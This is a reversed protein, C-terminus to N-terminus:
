EAEGGEFRYDHAVLIPRQDLERWFMALWVLGIGITIVIDLWSISAGDAHLNPEVLWILELLRMVLVFAAIAGLISRSRKAGRFLLLFFPIFFYGAMLVAGAYFWSTEMRPLYWRIEEPLNGAYIILFQSFVVYVWFMVSMLIMNGLDNFTGETAVLGVDERRALRTGILTMFAFTSVGSGAITIFGFQTSWWHPDLSMLWDWGGITMLVVWAVMGGASWRQAEIALPEGGERDQRDSITNLKWLLTALLLFILITRAIFMPENLYGIRHGLGESELYGERAWPYITDMGLAIPVFLILMLPWTRGASELPRRILYGWAGGTLHYLMLVAISGLTIGTWFMWGVLWSFFFQRPDFLAGIVALVLLVCGVIVMTRRNM